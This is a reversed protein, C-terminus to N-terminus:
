TEHAALYAEILDKNLRGRVGVDYGNTRAWARVEAPSPRTSPADVGATTADAMSAPAAAHRPPTARPSKPVPKADRTAAPQLHALLVKYVDPHITRTGLERAKAAKTGDVSGDTVLFATKASVTGVIRVGLDESRKELSVRLVEDCGTFVVKDGVRLPEGYQWQAPLEELGTSLRQNRAVEARDLLAPIVNAGVGLVDSITQLEAREARSVKGDDLAAHALALVFARNASEIDQHNLEETEAVTALDAAEDSTVEGDELVEALKELYALAGPPAGEDLADVLSFREVLEVLAKPADSGSRESTVVQARPREAGVTSPMLFSGDDSPGDPWTTLLATSPLQLHDDLPPLGVAPHMFAAVLGAAARADGLASHAGTLPTGTAWCCDALRRRDLRPLHYESAQLTCLTPLHPLRWGARAYEARLFAVDFRAHHAAVAAGVLRRNLEPVVDKFLPAHAVDAATIGHIHTAGVHGQPNLRTAWEDLVRGSPDTTVVAIELIRHEHASLGTTEVDIVAFRPRGALASSGATSSWQPANPEMVGATSQRRRFRDLLGMIQETTETPPALTMSADVASLM